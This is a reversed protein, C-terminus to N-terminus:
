ISAHTPTTWSFDDYSYLQSNHYGYSYAQGGTCSTSGTSVYTVYQGQGNYGGNWGCVTNNPRKVMVYAYAYGADLGLPDACLGSSSYKTATTAVGQYNGGTTHDLRVWAQACFVGFGGNEAYYTNIPGTPAPVELPDAAAVGGMLALTAFLAVLSQVGRKRIRGM